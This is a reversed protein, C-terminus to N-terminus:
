ESPLIALIFRQSFKNLINQCTSKTLFMKSKPSLQITNSFKLADIPSKITVFQTQLRAVM